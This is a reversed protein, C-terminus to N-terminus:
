VEDRAALEVAEAAMLDALELGEDNPVFRAPELKGWGRQEWARALALMPTTLAAGFRRELASFDVGVRTRVGVMLLEALHTAPSLRETQADLGPAERWHRYGRPNERRMAVGDAIRLSHAGPGVGLYEDGVWYASNHVAEAGPRAFSSVEYRDYGLRALAERLKAGVVARAEEDWPSLTGRRRRADFATGSEFTLEYASVHEVSDALEALCDLDNTLRDAAEGPVAYILDVSVRLGASSALRAAAMAQDGDHGRGLVRLTHADFSQTGLSIRTVGAVALQAVFPPTVDEPNAEVTIERVNVPGPWRDTHRLAATIGDAGWLSPTGGGFYVSRLERGEFEPMRRAIEEAIEREFAQRPVNATVAIAFDCYPCRRACFPVHVYLGARGTPALAPADPARM